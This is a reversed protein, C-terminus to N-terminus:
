ARESGVLFLQNSPAQPPVGGDHLIEANVPVSPSEDSNEFACDPEVTPCWVNLPRSSSLTPLSAARDTCRLDSRGGAFSPVRPPVVISGACTRVDM